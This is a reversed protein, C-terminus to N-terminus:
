NRSSRLQKTFPWHPLARKPSSKRGTRLLQLVFPLFLEIQHISVTPKSVLTAHWACLPKPSPLAQFLTSEEWPTSDSISGSDARGRLRIDVRVEPLLRHPNFPTLFTPLLTVGPVVALDIVCVDGHLRSCPEANLQDIRRKHASGRFRQMMVVYQMGFRSGATINDMRELIRDVTSLRLASASEVLLSRVEQLDRLMDEISPSPISRRGPRPLMAPQLQELANKHRDPLSLVEQRIQRSGLRLLADIPHLTSTAPTQWLVQASSKVNDVPDTRSASTAASAPRYNFAELDSRRNIPGQRESRLQSPDGPLPPTALIQLLELYIQDRLELLIGLLNATARTM